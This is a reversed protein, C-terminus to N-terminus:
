RSIDRVQLARRRRVRGGEHEAVGLRHGVHQRLNLLHRDHGLVDPGLVGGAVALRQLGELVVRRDDGAAREDQRLVRGLLDRQELLVGGEVALLRVDVPEPQLEELGGVGLHGRELAALQVPHLHRDRRGRHGRELGGMEEDPGTGPIGEVVEDDVGVRLLLGAVFLQEVRQQPLREVVRDVPLGHHRGRQEPVPLRTGRDDRGGGALPRVRRDLRRREAQRGGVLQQVLGTVLHPRVAQPDGVAVRHRVGDDHRRVERALVEGPRELDDLRVELLDAHLQVQLDEVGGGGVVRDQGVVVAVELDGHPVPERQGVGVEHERHQGAVGEAHPVVGSVAALGVVLQVGLLARRHVRRLPLLHDVLHLLHDGRGLRVQHDVVRVRDLRLAAM